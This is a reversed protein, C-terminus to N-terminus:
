ALVHFSYSSKLISLLILSQHQNKKKEFFLGFILQFTFFLLFFVTILLSYTQSSCWIPTSGNLPVDLLQIFPSAPVGHLKIYIGLGAGLSSYSWAGACALPLQSSILQATFSGATMTSLNLVIWCHTGATFFLFLMRHGAYTLKQPQEERCALSPM